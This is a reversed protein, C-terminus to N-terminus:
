GLISALAIDINPYRYKFGSELAKAPLVRQGSLLAEEAMQGFALRLAFAPAPLFAPRHLARGLSRTFQRNTVPHPATGNIPGHLRKEICHVILRVLDERAIWSMWQRGHGLPGGLGLRFIPLMKGLAGGDASLVVGTRLCVTPIDMAEAVRAEKEWNLCLEALFGRGPAADESLPEDDRPGYYGIASANIFSRPARKAASLGAVLARTSLIRSDFLAKKVTKTWRGNAMSHGALNVVADAGDLASQWPGSSVGDWGVAKLGPVDNPRRSLVVVELGAKSLAQCLAQGILGSGGAVVIRSM